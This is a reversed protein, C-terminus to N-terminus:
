DEGGSSAQARGSLFLLGEAYAESASYSEFRYREGNVEFACTCGGITSSLVIEPKGSQILMAECLKRLQEETPLWVSERTVLTDLAWESAGQFMILLEGQLSDVTVLMDSIVYIKEDMGREPIMFFDHLSPTWVVGAAKLKRATESSIM